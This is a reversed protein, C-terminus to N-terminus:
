VVVAKKLFPLPWLYLLEWSSEPFLFLSLLLFSVSVQSSPISLLILSGASSLFQSSVLGTHVTAPPCDKRNDPSSQLSQWPLQRGHDPNSKKKNHGTVQCPTVWSLFPMSPRILLYLGDDCCATGNRCPYVALM